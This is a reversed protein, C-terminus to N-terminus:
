AILIPAFTFTKRDSLKKSAFTRPVNVNALM